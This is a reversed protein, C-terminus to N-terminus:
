SRRCARQRRRAPDARGDLRHLERRRRALLAEPRRVQHAPLARPGRGRDPPRPHAEEERRQLEAQHPDSELKQQWWRKEARTPSTCTSPASRAATPRACRKCRARAADHARRERLLHQQHQVGIDMTPTPSATSRRSSSPSRRRARHAQASRPRGLARRRLPLRRDAVPRPGAQPRDGPRRGVVQNGFAKGQRAAAFSDVVPAHAVDRPTSATPRRSTRCRTSTPAGTTPCALRPQRPLGRVDGRRVARQRRVPVLEGQKGADNREGKVGTEPPATPQFVKRPGAEGAASRSGARECPPRSRVPLVRRRTVASQLVPGRTAIRALAHLRSAQGAGAVGSCVSRQGSRVRAALRAVLEARRCWRRSRASARAAAGSTRGPRADRRRRLEDQESRERAARGPRARRQPDLGEPLQRARRHVPELLRHRRESSEVIM